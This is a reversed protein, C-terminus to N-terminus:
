LRQESFELGGHVGLEIQLLEFGHDVLGGEIREIGPELSPEFIEQLLFQNTRLTHSLQLFQPRAELGDEVFLILKIGFRKGRELFTVSEVEIGSVLAGACCGCQEVDRQIEAGRAGVGCRAQLEGEAALEILEEGTRKRANGDIVADQCKSQVLFAVNREAQGVKGGVGRMSVVGNGLQLGDIFIGAPQDERKRGSVEVGHFVIIRAAQRDSKSHGCLGRGYTQM